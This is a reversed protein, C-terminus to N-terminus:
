RGLIATEGDPGSLADLLIPELRQWDEELGLDRGIDRITAIFVAGTQSLGQHIHGFVELTVTGYLRVWAREFLWLVGPSATPLAEAVLEKEGFDALAVQVERPLEEMAPIPFRYRPWLRQFIEAFYLGFSPHGGVDDVGPVIPCALPVDRDGTAFVLRYENRNGLAWRRFAGTSAIIQAAPDDDAYAERAQRMAAIVDILVMHSVLAILQAHGDVYRYLAPPTMGMETAVARLSIEEDRALLGRSVQVIEEYTAARQRERRSLADAPATMM